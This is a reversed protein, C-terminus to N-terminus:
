EALYLRDHGAAALTAMIDVLRQLDAGAAARLIVPAAPPGLVALAPALAAPALPRGNLTVGDAAVVVLRPPGEWGPGPGGAIGLGRTGEAGFRAAVMFFVVLLFVVDIMPTLNPRRRPRPSGFDFM